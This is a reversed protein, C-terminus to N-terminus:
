DYEKMNLEVEGMKFYGATPTIRADIMTSTSEGSVRSSARKVEAIKVGDVGQLADVLGMNSYEGNFPLNEIYGKIRERCVTEVESSSLMGDYYVEILSDFLDAEKNVLSVRVGADKIEGIYNRLRREDEESLPMREGGREGAVKITLISADENEIAVAHKVVRMEEIEEERLGSTDYEDSDTVLLMGPMFAMVKRRYWQPRHAEMDSIKDEIERKHEEVLREISWTAVAFVYILVNEISVRSFFSSFPIGVEFGYLKSATENRMFEEAIEGKIESITRM